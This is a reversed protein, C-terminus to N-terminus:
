SWYCPWAFYTEKVPSQKFDEWRELSKQGLVIKLNGGERCLGNVFLIVQKFDTVMWHKEKDPSYIEFIESSFSLSKFYHTFHPPTLSFFLFLNLIHTTPPTKPIFSGFHAFSHILQLHAFPIIFFFNHYLKIKIRHSDRNKDQKEFGFQVEWHM